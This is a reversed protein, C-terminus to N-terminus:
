VVVGSGKDAEKIVISFDEKLKFLAVREAKSLNNYNNDSNSMSM